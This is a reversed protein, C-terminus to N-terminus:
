AAKVNLLTVNSNPKMSEGPDPDDEDDAVIEALTDVADITMDLLELMESVEHTLFICWIALLSTAITSCVAFILM